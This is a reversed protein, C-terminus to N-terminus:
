RRIAVAAHNRRVSFARLLQLAMTSKRVAEVERHRLLCVRWGLIVMRRDIWANVLSRTGSRM